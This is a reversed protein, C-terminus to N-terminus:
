DWGFYNELVYVIGLSIPYFCLVILGDILRHVRKFAYTAVVIEVFLICMTEASFSWVLEQTYILILFVFLCFTNNMCAAGELASFSISITKRTKKLAYNYSAIVESANSALPALIFSIYFGSIGFRKGMSSFVGVMPDSFLLVLSTGIAMLYFARLKIRLQQEEPSLHALDEPVEEMEDESEDGTFSHPSQTTNGSIKRSEISDNSHPSQIVYEIMAAVFEDFDIEGSNDKDCAVFFKNLQDESPKENLMYFLQKVEFRDLFGSKDTDLRHFFPRLVDEMDLRSKSGTPLLPADRAKEWTRATGSTAALYIDHMAGRLNVMGSDICSKKKELIRDQVPKSKSAERAQYVLYLAFSIFTVVMGALAFGNEFKRAVKVPDGSAMFAPIQIILYCLMTLLVLKANQAISSECEVATGFLSCNNPPSLKSWGQSSTNRPRSYTCKGDEYNVRGGYISLFWPITLLMVTSGALAGVGVKLEEQANPGIGSFLVIAGDPVAGLIPLVVSGVIGAVSPVLLLLESGNSIMNSANFLIYGYVFGLFLLQFDGYFDEALLEPDIFFKGVVDGM